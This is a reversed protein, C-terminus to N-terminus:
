NIIIKTNSVATKTQISVIYVGTPGYFDIQSTAGAEVRGSAISRGSMDIIRINGNLNDISQINIKREAVYVNFGDAVKSNIGTADNRFHLFFRNKLESPQIVQFSYSPLTALNIFTGAQRDELRVTSNSGFSEVQSSALTYNGAVGAKITLPVVKEDVFEGMFNITFALDNKVTWLEPAEAYMSGFKESGAEPESHNFAVIAEDSYNNASCSIKLKLEEQVRDSNKLFTQSSHVKIGDGFTLTGSAAALVFFGQGAAIYRSVGNTGVDGSTATTYTGYNGTADNWVWFSKETGSLNTMNWGSSAKWDISCPYPNGVLNYYQFGAGGSHTLAYDVNGNNLLGSFTKTTNNTQYAVLYGRGPLFSTNGNATNWTPAVSTNKFNVWVMQSEYWTYFDYDNGAGGPTFSGSVSQSAVPSSLFHWAWPNGGVYREVQCNTGTVSGSTKLSATGDSSSKLVLNGSVVLADKVTVYSQPDIDLEAGASISLNSFTTNDKAQGKLIFTGGSVRWNSGTSSSIIAGNNFICQSFSAFSGFFIGSLIIFKKM